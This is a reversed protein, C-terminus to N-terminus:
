IGVAVSGAAYHDSSSDSVASQQRYMVSMYMTNYTNDRTVWKLYWGKGSATATDLLALLLM